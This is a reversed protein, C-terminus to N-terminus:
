TPKVKAHPNGQICNLFSTKGSSVNGLVAFQINYFIEETQPVSVRGTVSENPHSADSDLPRTPGRRTPSRNESIPASDPRISNISPGKITNRVDPRHVATAPRPKIAEKNSDENQNGYTNSSSSPSGDEIKIVDLQECMFELVNSPKSVALRNVLKTLVPSIQTALYLRQSTKAKTRLNHKHYSNGSKSSDIRNQFFDKMADTVNDPQTCLLHTICDGVLPDVERTFYDYTEEVKKQVRINKRPEHKKDDSSKRLERLARIGVAPTSSM